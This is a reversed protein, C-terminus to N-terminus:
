NPGARIMERAGANRQTVAEQTIEHLWLLSAYVRADLLQHVRGGAIIVPAEVQRKGVRTPLKQPSKSTKSM